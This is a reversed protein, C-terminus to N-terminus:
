DDTKNLEENKKISYFMWFLLLVYIVALSGTELTTMEFM